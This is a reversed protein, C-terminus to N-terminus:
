TYGKHDAFDLPDPERFGQAQCLLTALFVFAIAQKM